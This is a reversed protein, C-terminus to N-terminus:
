SSVDSLLASNHLVQLIEPRDPVPILNGKFFEDFDERYRTEFWIHISLM